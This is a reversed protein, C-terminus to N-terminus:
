HAGQPAREGRGTLHLLHDFGGPKIEVLYAPNTQILLAKSVHKLLTGADMLVARHDDSSYGQLTRDAFYRASELLGEYTPVSVQLVTSIQM